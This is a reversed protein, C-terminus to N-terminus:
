IVELEKINFENGKLLFTNGSNCHPCTKGYIITNYDRGCDECHTVAHIKIIKLKCDTMIEHKKVAWDWCDVLYKDIVGTVTGLEITVTNIHKANNEEAIKECEEIVKFVVGLEHM